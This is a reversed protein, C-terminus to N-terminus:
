LNHRQLRRWTLRGGLLLVALCLLAFLFPGALGIIGDVGAAFGHLSDHWAKDIGSAAPAPAEHHHAGPETLAVILTSYSTESDIVALQGQLQEIQSQLNDLQAQVALVDGVSSAKTMITLYQQRSAELASIRAQLDVYQGTVDTAKTTVASPKGLTKADALLAAFQAVPVQLTVTGSPPENSASAGSAGSAGSVGGTGAAGNSQTQSNAVFGGYASALATLKNMTSTLAGHAVTLDLSGTQEIRAPQGVAGAPLSSTGSATAGKTGAASSTASGQASPAAASFTTGPAARKEQPNTTTTSLAPSAGHRVDAPTQPSKLTKSAVNTQNTSSLNGLIAAAGALVLLGILAAAVALWRHTRIISTVTRPSPEEGSGFDPDAQDVHRGGGGDRVGDNRGGGGGDGHGGDHREDDGRRVRRLIDASGSAPVAYSDGLEHLLTSLTEDDLMTM